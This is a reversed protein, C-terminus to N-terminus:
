AKEGAYKTSAVKVINEPTAVGPTGYQGGMNLAAHTGSPIVVRGTAEKWEQGNRGIGNPIRITVRDGTRLNKVLEVPDHYSKKM